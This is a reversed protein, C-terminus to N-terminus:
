RESKKDAEKGGGSKAGEGNEEDEAQDRGENEAANYQTQAEKLKDEKAPGGGRGGTTHALIVNRPQAPATTVTATCRRDDIMFDKPAPNGEATVGTLTLQAQQGPPLSAGYPTSTVTADDRQWDAPAPGGPPQGGPLTLRLRWGPQIPRDHLNTVKVIANFTGDGNTTLDLGVHCEVRAPPAPGLAQAPPTVSQPSWTTAAWVAGTLAAAGLGALATKGRRQANSRHQRRLRKVETSGTFTAPPPATNHRTRQLIPRWMARAPVAFAALADALQGADPRRWPREQLCSMCVRAIGSPLGPIDIEDPAPRHRLWSTDQTSMSPGPWPLDGTLLLYMLVGVAFVDVAPGVPEGDVREPALYTPTGMIRGDHTTDNDGTLACIGFDVLKAGQETLLVNAATVDRHVIGLAHAAALADAVQAVLAAAAPWPLRSTLSSLPVGNVLEMVLYATRPSADITGFDHVTAVNPHALRALAQAEIHMRAIADDDGALRRHLLKVAVQRGLQRDRARWLTSMGGKALPSVLEYRGGLLDGDRVKPHEIM